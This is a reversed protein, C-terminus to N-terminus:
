GGLHPNLPHFYFVGQAYDNARENGSSGEARQCLALASDLHLAEDIAVEGVRLTVESVIFAVQEAAANAIVRDRICM